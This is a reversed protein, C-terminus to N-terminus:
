IYGLDMLAQFCLNSTLFIFRQWKAMNNLSNNGNQFSLLGEAISAILIVTRLDIQSKFAFVLAVVPLLPCQFVGPGAIPPIRSKLRWLPM